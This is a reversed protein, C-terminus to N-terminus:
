RGQPEVTRAERAALAELHQFAYCADGRLPARVVMLFGADTRTLGAQLLQRSEPCCTVWRCPATPDTVSRCIPEASAAPWPDADMM